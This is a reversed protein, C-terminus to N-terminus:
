ETAPRVMRYNGLGRFFSGKESIMKFGLRKYLAIARTNTMEADLFIDGGHAHSIHRILLSGIGHGRFEPAVCVNQIYIGNVDSKDILARLVFSKFFLTFRDWRSLVARYDADEKAQDVLRHDFAVIIGRVVNKEVECLIYRHSFSNDEKKVLEAITPLAKARRGFLFPFLYEDTDYILPVVVDLDTEPDM